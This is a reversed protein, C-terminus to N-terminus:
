FIFLSIIGAAAIIGFIIGLRKKFESSGFFAAYGFKILTNSLVALIIATAAIDTSTSAGAVNAMSLVIADVDVFGTIVSAAYIGTQGLYLEAAKIILLVLAFLVGFKIAPAVRLPSKHSVEPTSKKLSKDRRLWLVTASILATIIMVLMPGLVKILLPPNIVYVEILVRIFMVINAILTAFVLLKVVGLNQEKKSREAMSLTVATSSVLGGLLGTIGIGNKSGFIKILIYGVYSLGCIFVVMLWIKYPNFVGLPGYPVNPLFPLIVFAIIAFVLTSYM